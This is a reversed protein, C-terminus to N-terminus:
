CGRARGFGGAFTAEGPPGGNCGYATEGIWLEAHPLKSGKLRALEQEGTQVFGAQDQQDPPLCALYAHYNGALAPAGLEATINLFTQLDLQDASASYAM